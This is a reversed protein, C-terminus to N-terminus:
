RDSDNGQGGTTDIWKAAEWRVVYRRDAHIAISARGDTGTFCKVLIQDIADSGDRPVDIVAQEGVRLSVVKM